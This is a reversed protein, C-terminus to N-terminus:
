QEKSNKENNKEENNEEGNLKNIFNQIAEDFEEKDYYLDNITYFHDDAFDVVGCRHAVPDVEALAKSACYHYGCISVPSYVEDLVANYRREVSYYPYSSISILIEDQQEKILSIFVQYQSKSKM